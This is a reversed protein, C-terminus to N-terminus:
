KEIRRLRACRLSRCRSLVLSSNPLSYSRVASARPESSSASLSSLSRRPRPTVLLPPALDLPDEHVVRAPGYLKGVPGDHLDKLLAVEDGIWRLAVLLGLAAEGDHVGIDSVIASNLGIEPRTRPM